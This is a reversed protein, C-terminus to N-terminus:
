LIDTGTQLVDYISSGGNKDPSNRGDYRKGNCQKRIRYKCSLKDTNDYYISNNYKKCIYSTDNENNYVCRSQRYEAINDEIYQNDYTRIACIWVDPKNEDISWSLHSDTWLVTLKSEIVNKGGQKSAEKFVQAFADSNADSLSITSILIFIMFIRNKMGKLCNLYNKSVEM